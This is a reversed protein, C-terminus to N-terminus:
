RDLCGIQPPAGGGRCPARYFAVPLPHDLARRADTRRVDVTHVDDIIHADPPPPRTRVAKGAQRTRGRRRDCLVTALTLTWTTQGPQALRRWREVRAEFAGHRRAGQVATAQQGKVLDAEAAM